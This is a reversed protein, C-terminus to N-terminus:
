QSEKDWIWYSEGDGDFFMLGRECVRLYPQYEHEQDKAMKIRFEKDDFDIHQGRDGFYILNPDEVGVLRDARLMGGATVIGTGNHDDIDATNGSAKDGDLSMLTAHMARVGYYNATGSGNRVMVNSTHGTIGSDVNGNGLDFERVIGISSYWWMGHQGGHLNVDRFKVGICTSVFATDTFTLHRFVIGDIGGGQCNVVNAGSVNHNEKNETYGKIQLYERDYSYTTHLEITEPYDGIIWVTIPKYISRPLLEVLRDWTKLAESPVEGSNEDDGEQYDVYFAAPTPDEEDDDKTAPPRSGLGHVNTEAKEHKKFETMSALNEYTGATFRNEVVSGESHPNATTNEQGRKVTFQSDSVETVEMIEYGVSILFPPDPFESTDEVLLTEEEETLSESLTSWAKNAMNLREDRYDGNDAM